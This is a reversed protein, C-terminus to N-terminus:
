TLLSGSVGLGAELRLIPKFVRCTDQIDITLAILEGENVNSNADSVFQPFLDGHSTYIPRHTQEREFCVALLAFISLM